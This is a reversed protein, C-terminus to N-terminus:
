SMCLAAASCRAATMPAVAEWRDQRPDYAEVTALVTNSDGMGGVAYLKGQAATLSLFSRATSMPAVAVWRNTQPDFAEVSIAGSGDGGAVYLKGGLVAAGHQRRKTPMPPALAWTNAHPDYVEVSDLYHPNTGGTVYIKGDLVAAAAQYRCESMPAVQIWAGTQPDFAEVSSLDRGESDDGGIAYLKGGVVAHAHCRRPTRMPPSHAWTNTQPDYVQVADFLEDYDPHTRVPRNATVYIKGDLVAAAAYMRPTPPPTGAAWTNTQTDYIEVTSLLRFETAHDIGVPVSSGGMVYLFRSGFGQRPQQAPGNVLPVMMEIILDKGAATQLLPSTRVTEHIFARSM